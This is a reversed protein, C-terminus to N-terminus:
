FGAPEDKGYAILLADGHKAPLMEVRFFPKAM